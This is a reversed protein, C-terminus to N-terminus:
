SLMGACVVCLATIVGAMVWTSKELFTATQKVGFRYNFEGFQSSLGGGKSEQVLVLCIVLLASIIILIAFFTFMKLFILTFCYYCLLIAYVVEGKHM